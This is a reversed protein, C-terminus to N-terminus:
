ASGSTRPPPPVHPGLEHGTGANAGQPQMFYHGLSSSVGGTEGPNEGANAPDHISSPVTNTSVSPSMHQDLLTADGFSADPSLLSPPLLAIETRLLAGANPRLSAFPFVREDFVVDHSIYIRGETPDLCKFGKHMHSYGLFVCKKISTSTEQLQLALSKTLCRM